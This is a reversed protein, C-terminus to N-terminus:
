CYPRTAEHRRNEMQCCRCHARPGPGESEKLSHLKLSNDCRAPLEASPVRACLLMMETPSKLVNTLRAHPEGLESCPSLEGNTCLSRCGVAALVCLARGRGRVGLSAIGFLLGKGWEFLLVPMSGCFGSRSYVLTSRLLARGASRAAGAFTTAM